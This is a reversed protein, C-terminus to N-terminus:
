CVVNYALGDNGRAASIDGAPDAVIQQWTTDDNDTSIPVGGVSRQNTIQALGITAVETKANPCQFVEGFIKVAANTSFFGSAASATGDYVFWFAQAGNGLHRTGTAPGGQIAIGQAQARDKIRAALDGRVGDESPRLLTRLTTVSLSGQYGPGSGQPHDYVLTQSKATPGGQAADQSATENREWGNGGRGELLRDPVRAASLDLCGPALLALGLCVLLARRM